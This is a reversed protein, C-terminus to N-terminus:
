WLVSYKRPPDGIVMTRINCRKDLIILLFLVCVISVYDISVKNCRSSPICHFTITKVHIENFSPNANKLSFIQISVVSSFKV